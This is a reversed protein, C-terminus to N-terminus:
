GSLLRLVALLALVELLDEKGQNSVPPQTPPPPAGMQSLAPFMPAPFLPGSFGQYQMPTYMSATMPAYTSPTAMSQPEPTPAAPHPPTPPIIRRPPPQSHAPAPTKPKPLNTPALLAPILLLVGLFSLLYIGFGIGILVLFVSVYVLNRNM